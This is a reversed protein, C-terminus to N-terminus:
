GWWRWRFWCCPSVGRWRSFRWAASPSVCAVPWPTHNRGATQSIDWWRNCATMQFTLTILGIQTFNLHFSEKVVPYIAPILSQITDNLLHSFSIALLVSMVTKEAAERIEPAVAVSESETRM